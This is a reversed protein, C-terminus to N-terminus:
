KAIKQQEDDKGSNKDQEDNVADRLQAIDVEGMFDDFQQSLAFKMYQIRRFLRGAGYMLQPIERPGIVFVAVVLIVFLEPWGFDLM